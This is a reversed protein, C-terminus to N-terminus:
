LDKILDEFAKLRRDYEDRYSKIRAVSSEDFVVSVRSDLDGWEEYPIWGGAQICMLDGNEALRVNDGSQLTGCPSGKIVVYPLGEKMESIKFTKL